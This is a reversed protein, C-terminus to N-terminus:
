ISQPVRLRSLKWVSLNRCLYLVHNLIFQIMWYEAISKTSFFMPTYVLHKAVAHFEWAFCSPYSFTIVEILLIWNGYQTKEMRTRSKFDYLYIAPNETKESRDSGQHTRLHPSNSETSQPHTKYIKASFFCTDECHEPCPLSFIGDRFKVLEEPVGSAVLDGPDSGIIHDVLPVSNTAATTM